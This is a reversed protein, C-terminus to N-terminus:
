DPVVHPVCNLFSRAGREVLYWPSNGVYVRNVRRMKADYTPLGEERGRVLEGTELVRFFGEYRDLMHRLQGALRPFSESFSDSWEEVRIRLNYPEKIM